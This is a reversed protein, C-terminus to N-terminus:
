EFQYPVFYPKFKPQERCIMMLWDECVCHIEGNLQEEIDEHCYEAWAFNLRPTLVGIDGNSRRQIHFDCNGEWIMKPKPEWLRLLKVHYNIDEKIEM